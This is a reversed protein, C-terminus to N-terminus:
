RLPFTAMPFLPYGTTHFQPAPRLDYPATGDSISSWSTTLKGDAMLFVSAKLAARLARLQDWLRYPALLFCFSIYFILAYQLLGPAVMSRMWMIAMKRWEPHSVQIKPYHLAATNWTSLPICMPLRVFHNALFSLHRMAFIQLCMWGYKLTFCGVQYGM